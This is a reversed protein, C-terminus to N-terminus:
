GSINDQSQEGTEEGGVCEEERGGCRPYGEPSESLAGGVHRDAAEEVDVDSALRGSSDDHLQSIIDNRLSSLIKTCQARSLFSKTKLSALKMANNGAEHALTAVEGFSISGTSLRDVTVLKLVFVKLQLMSACSDQRHSVSSFVRISGLEEQARCLSSPQIALM